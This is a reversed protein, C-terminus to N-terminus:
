KVVFVFVDLEDKLKYVKVLVKFYGKKVEKSVLIKLGFIGFVVGGLFFLLKKVVKVVILVEKLM